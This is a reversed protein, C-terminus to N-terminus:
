SDLSHANRTLTLPALHYRDAISLRQHRHYDKRRGRTRARPGANGAQIARATAELSPDPPRVRLCAGALQGLPSQRYPTGSLGGHTDPTPDHTGDSDPARSRWSGCNSMSQRSRWSGYNSMAPTRTGRGVPGDLKRTWSSSLCVAPPGYPRPRPTPAFVCHGVWRASGGPHPGAGPVRSETRM